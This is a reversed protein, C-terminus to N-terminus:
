IATAFWLLLEGDNLKENEACVSFAMDLLNQILGLSRSREGQLHIGLLPSSHWRCKM